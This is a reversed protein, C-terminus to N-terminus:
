KIKWEGEMFFDVFQENDIEKKLFFRYFVNVCLLFFGIFIDM